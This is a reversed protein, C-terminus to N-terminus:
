LDQKEESESEHVPTSSLVGNGNEDEVKVSVSQHDGLEQILNEYIRIGRMYTDVPLYENHKHLLDPSRNIPSFGFCPIGKKRIYRSDTAAPFIGHSLQDEIGSNKMGNMFPTIFTNESPDRSTMVDTEVKMVWDYSVGPCKEKEDCMFWSEIEQEVDTNHVTPPVRIDFGAESVSPIVNMVFGSAMEEDPHGAKLYALNVGIIYGPDVGQKLRKVQKERFALANAIIKNLTNSATRDPLTAGHGPNDNVKVALWWTRREGYYVNFKGDDRPLGEDLAVGVNLADFEPSEVFKGMGDRGGIEEDPVFSVHITRKPIWNKQALEALAELYQLGVSKMDQSGRAYIRLEGDRFVTKASYPPWQWKAEESPVVDTHSNLLLSALHPQTGPLTIVLVSKGEVYTHVSVSVNPLLSRVTENLFTQAEEYAPNPHDTRIRLYEQLRHVPGPVPAVGSPIDISIKEHGIYILPGLLLALVSVISRPSVNVM